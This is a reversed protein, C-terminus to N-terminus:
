RAYYQIESEGQKSYYCILRHISWRGVTQRYKFTHQLAQGNAQMADSPIDLVAQTTAERPNLPAVSFFKSAPTASLTHNCQYQVEASSQANGNLNPTPTIQLHTYRFLNWELISQPAVFQTQLTCEIDHIFSFFVPIYNAEALVVATVDVTAPIDITMAVDDYGLAEYEGDFNETKGYLASKSIGVLSGNGIEALLAATNNNAALVLRITNADPRQIEKVMIEKDVGYDGAECEDDHFYARSRYSTGVGSDDIAQGIMTRKGPSVPYSEFDSFDIDQAWDVLEKYGYHEIPGVYTQAKDNWKENKVSYVIAMTKYEAFEPNDALFQASPRYFFLIEKSKKNYYAFFESTRTKDYVDFYLPEFALSVKKPFNVGDDRYIGTPGMFYMCGEASVASRGSFATNTGRPYLEFDSNEVIVAVPQALPSVRVQEQLYNGTFAGAYYGESTFIAVRGDQEAQGPFSHIQMGLFKGSPCAFTSGNPYALIRGQLSFRMMSASMWFLRGAFSMVDFYQDPPLLSYDNFGNPQGGPAGVAATAGIYVNSGPEFYIKAFSHEGAFLWEFSGYERYYVRYKLYNLPLKKINDITMEPFIQTLQPFAVSGGPYVGSTFGSNITSISIISADEKVYARAPTGVNSEFGTLENYISYAYEYVTRGKLFGTGADGPKSVCLSQTGYLFRAARYWCTQIAVSATTTPNATPDLWQEQYLANPFEADGGLTTYKKPSYINSTPDIWQLFDNGTNPPASPTSFTNDAQSDRLLPNVLVIIPKDTIMAVANFGTTVPIESTRNFMWPFNGSTNYNSEAVTYTAVTVQNYNIADTQRRVGKVANLDGAIKSLVAKILWKKVNIYTQGALGGQTTTASFDVRQNERTVWYPTGFDSFVQDRPKTGPDSTAGSPDLTLFEFTNSNIRAQITAFKLFRNTYTNLTKLNLLDTVHLRDIAQFTRLLESSGTAWSMPAGCGLMPAEVKSVLDMRQGDAIIQTSPVLDILMASGKVRTTIWYLVPVSKFNTGIPLNLIVAGYCLKRQGYVDLAATTHTPPTQESAPLNRLYYNQMYGGPVQPGNEMSAHGPIPDIGYRTTLGRRKGYSWNVTFKSQPMQDIGQATDVIDDTNVDIGASLDFMAFAALNEITM